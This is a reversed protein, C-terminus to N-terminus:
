LAPPFLILYPPLTCEISSAVFSTTITVSISLLRQHLCLPSSCCRCQPPFNTKRLCFTASYHHDTLTLISDSLVVISTPICQFPPQNAHKTCTQVCILLAANVIQSHHAVFSLNLNYLIQAQSPQHKYLSALM